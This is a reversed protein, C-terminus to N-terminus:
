SKKITWMPTSIIASDTGLLTLNLPVESFKQLITKFFKSSIKSFFQHFQLSIKCVAFINFNQPFLPNFTKCLPSHFCNEPIESM